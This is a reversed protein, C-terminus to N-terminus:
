MPTPNAFTKRLQGKVANQPSLYLKEFVDPPISISGNTMMRQLDTATTQSGSRYFDEKQMFQQDPNPRPQFDQPNHAQMEAAM